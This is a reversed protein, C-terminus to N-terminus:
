WKQQWSKRPAATGPPQYLTNQQCTGGIGSITALCQEFTSFGCNRGGGTGSGGYLACWPYNQAEARTGLAAIAVVVGLMLPLTRM